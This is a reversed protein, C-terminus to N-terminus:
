NRVRERELFPNSPWERELFFKEKEMCDSRLFCSFKILLNCLVYPKRRRELGWTKPLFVFRTREIYIWIVQLKKEICCFRLFYYFSLLFIVFHKFNIRRELGHIKPLFVFSIRERHIWIVQMKKRELVLIKSLLFSKVIFGYIIPIKGKVGFWSDQNSIFSWDTEYM